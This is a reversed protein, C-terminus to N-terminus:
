RDLRRLSPASLPVPPRAVFRPSGPVRPAVPPLTALIGLREGLEELLAALDLGGDTGAQRARDLHGRAAALNREVGAPNGRVAHVYGAALKILGQYLAREGLDDTGMWAPELLEHAAFFDGAEWAAVAAEFAARRAAAALPRYAKRRGGGQDVTRRGPGGSASAPTM